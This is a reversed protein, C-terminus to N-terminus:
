IINMQRVCEMLVIELTQPLAITVFGLNNQFIVLEMMIVHVIRLVDLMIKMCNAVLIGVIKM